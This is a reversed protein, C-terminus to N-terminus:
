ATVCEKRIVKGQPIPSLILIKLNYTNKGAFMTDGGAGCFFTRRGFNLIVEGMTKLADKDAKM